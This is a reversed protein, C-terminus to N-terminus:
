RGPLHLAHTSQGPSVPARVSVVELARVTGHGEDAVTGVQAEIFVCRRAGPPVELLATTAGALDVMGWRGWSSEPACEMPSDPLVDEFWARALPLSKGAATVRVRMTAAPGPTLTVRQENPGVLQAAVLRGVKVSVVSWV